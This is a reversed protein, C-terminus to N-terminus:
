AHVLINKQKDFLSRTRQANIAEKQVLKPM